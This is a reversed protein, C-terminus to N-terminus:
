KEEEDKKRRKYFAGFLLGAGLLGAWSSSEEGTNPLVASKRPLQSDQSPTSESVTESVSESVSESISESM